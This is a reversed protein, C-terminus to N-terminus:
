KISSPWGVVNFVDVIFNQAAFSIWPVPVTFHRAIFLIKWGNGDFNMVVCERQFRGIIQHLYTYAIFTSKKEEM